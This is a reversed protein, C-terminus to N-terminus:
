LSAKSAVELTPCKVTGVYPFPGDWLPSVFGVGMTEGTYVLGSDVAASIAAYRNPVECWAVTHCPLSLGEQRRIEGEVRV